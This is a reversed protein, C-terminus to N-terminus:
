CPSFGQRIPVLHRRYNVCVEVNEVVLPPRIRPDRGDWNFIIRYAPPGDSRYM